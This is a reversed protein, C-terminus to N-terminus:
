ATADVAGQQDPDHLAKTMFCSHPDPSYGGFPRCAAFGAKAYLRRAAAFYDSAGTELSIRAYGRRRAEAIIHDLMGAGVGRGRATDAVHMSKVEGHDRAIAQLAGVAALEDRDWTAWVTVDPAMLGHLDLAHASCPPAAARALGVHRDLLAVVRPDDLDATRIEIM